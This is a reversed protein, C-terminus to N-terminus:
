GELLLRAEYLGVVKEETGEREEQAKFHTLYSSFYDEDDDSDREEEGAM